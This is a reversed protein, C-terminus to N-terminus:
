ILLFLWVKPSNKKIGNELLSFAILA